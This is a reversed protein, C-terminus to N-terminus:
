GTVSLNMVFSVTSGGVKGTDINIGYRETTKGGVLNSDEGFRYSSSLLTDANLPFPEIGEEDMQYLGGDLSPVLRAKGGGNKKIQLVVNSLKLGAPM